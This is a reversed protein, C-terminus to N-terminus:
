EARAEHQTSNVTFHVIPAYEGPEIRLVVVHGKQILICAVTFVTVAIIIKNM